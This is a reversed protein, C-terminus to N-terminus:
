AGRTQHMLCAGIVEALTAWPHQLHGNRAGERDESL